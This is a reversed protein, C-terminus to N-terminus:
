CKRELEPSIETRSRAMRATGPTVTIAPKPRRRLRVALGALGTGLLAPSGPEPVVAALETIMVEGNGARVDGILIQDTGTDFSGSGGAFHGQGGGGGGSYGGGGGGAGRSGQLGGGGGGLGAMALVQAPAPVAEPSLPSLEV